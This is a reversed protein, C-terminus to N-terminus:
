QATGVHFCYQHRCAGAAERSWTQSPIFYNKEAIERGTQRALDGGVGPANTDTFDERRLPPLGTFQRGLTKIVAPASVFGGNFNWNLLTPGRAPLRNEGPPRTVDIGTFYHVIPLWLM